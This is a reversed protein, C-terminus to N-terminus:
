ACLGRGLSESRGVRDKLRALIFDMYANAEDTFGLRILAYLTFSSDRVWTFRYDWNRTGGIYEPLSFTPAAVIAGTQEFVLMKLTLASRHVVERWRGKYKSKSIWKRWYSLTDRELTELLEKSIIPDEAPRLKSAGAMLTKLDVGMIKARGHDPNAVVRHEDSQYAYTKLERLVFYILQGAQLEFDAVVGDGLLGRNSLDEIKMEFDPRESCEDTNDVKYRLDLSLDKSRFVAKYEHEDDIKDVSSDQTL